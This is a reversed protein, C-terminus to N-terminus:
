AISKLFEEFTFPGHDRYYKRILHRFFQEGSEPHGNDPEESLNFEKTNLLEPLAEKLDRAVLNEKAWEPNVINKFIEECKKQWFLHFPQHFLEHGINKLQKSVPNFSVAFWKEPTSYPRIPYRILYATWGNLDFDCDYFWGLQRIFWEEKLGWEKKLESISSSIKDDAAPQSLRLFDFDVNVTELREKQSNAIFLEKEHSYVLNLKPM